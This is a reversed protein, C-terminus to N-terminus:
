HMLLAEPHGRQEKHVYSLGMVGLVFLLEYVALGVHWLACCAHPHLTSFCELM